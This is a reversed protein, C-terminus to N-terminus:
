PCFPPTTFCGEWDINYLFLWIPVPNVKKYTRLFYIGAFSVKTRIKCNKGRFQILCFIRLRHSIKAFTKQFIERCFNRLFFNLSYHLTTVADILKAFWRTYNKRESSLLLLKIKDHNIIETNWKECFKRM